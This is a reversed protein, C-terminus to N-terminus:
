GKGRPQRGTQRVRELAHALLLDDLHLLLLVDEVLLLDEVHHVVGEDELEGAAVVVVGLRARRREVKGRGAGGPAADTQRRVAGMSRM